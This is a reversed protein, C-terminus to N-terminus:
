PTFNAEFATNAIALEASPSSVLTHYSLALSALAVMCAFALARRFIGLTFDEAQGDQKSGLWHAIVRTEFGLPIEDCSQTKVHAASRFLRSFHDDTM